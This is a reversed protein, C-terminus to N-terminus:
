FKYNLKAVLTNESETFKISTPGFGGTGVADGFNYYNYEVGATVHDSVAYEAGVGLTWGTRGGSGWSQTVPVNQSFRYQTFAVGGDGFVLLRDFAAGVRARVSGLWDQSTRCNTGIVTSCQANGVMTSGAFDGEVGIVFQGFQYNYGAQGGYIVGGGDTLFPAAPPGSAVGFESSNWAGGLQGGVYFGTWSFQPAAPAPPAGKVTPLDAALASGAGLLVAAVAIACVKM